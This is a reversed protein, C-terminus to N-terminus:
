CRWRAQPPSSKRAWCGKKFGLTYCVGREIRVVQAIGANHAIDTAKSAWPSITGLRPVVTLALGESNVAPAAEGYDLLKCLVELAQAGLAEHSAMFHVFHAQVAVVQSHIAQLRALLASLRFGSM